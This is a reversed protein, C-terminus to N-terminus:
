ESLLVEKSKYPIYPRFMESFRKNMIQSQRDRNMYKLGYSIKRRMDEYVKDDSYNIRVLRRTAPYKISMESASDYRRSKYYYYYLQNRM